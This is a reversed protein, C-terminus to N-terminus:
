CTVFPLEPPGMRGAGNESDQSCPATQTSGIGSDTWLFSPRFLLPPVRRAHMEGVGFQRKLLRQMHQEESPSPDSRSLESTPMVDNM